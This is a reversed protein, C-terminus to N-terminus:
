RFNDTDSAIAKGVSQRWGIAKAALHSVDRVTFSMGVEIEGTARRTVYRVTGMRPWASAPFRIAGKLLKPCIQLVTGPVMVTSSLFRVGNASLSIIEGVCAPPDATSVRCFVAPVSTMRRRVCRHQSLRVLSEKQTEPKRKGNSHVPNTGFRFAGRLDCCYQFHDRRAYRM